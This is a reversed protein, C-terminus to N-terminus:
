VQNSEKKYNKGVKSGNNKAFERKKSMKKLYRDKSKQKNLISKEEEPTFNYFVNNSSTVPNKVGVDIGLVSLEQEAEPLSAVQNLIEEETLLEPVEVKYSFSIFFKNGRRSLWLMNPLTTLQYPKSIKIECFVKTDKTKKFGIIIEAETEEITFLEKTVLCKKPDSSNRFRPKKSIGQIAANVAKIFVYGINRRIQSPVEKLWPRQPTVFHAMKQDVKPAKVAEGNSKAALFKSLNQNNESVKDNWLVHYCGMWKAFTTASEADLLQGIELKRGKTLLLGLKRDQEKCSNITDYM